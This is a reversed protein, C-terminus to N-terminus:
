ATTGNRRYSEVLCANLDQQSLYVQGLISNITRVDDHEVAIVLALLQGLDGNKKILADSINKDVQIQQLLKELREKYALESISLLGTMYAASAFKTSKHMRKALTEMLSAREKAQMRLPEAYDEDEDEVDAAYILMELWNALKERGILILAQEVSAISENSLGEHLRIFKLLNIALYPSENFTHILQDLPADTKLLYVLELLLSNEPDLRTHKMILPKAFFYGQFFHFGTKVVRDYTEQDEIKEGIYEFNYKDFEIFASTPDKLLKVDVKLYDLRQILADNLIFFSPDDEFRNLSFHYGKGRLYDIRKILEDNIVSDQLIELIFHTPSISFIIDDMLTKDDVKIFAKKGKTLNNLGIYNLANVLVRATAHMNNKISVGGEEARNRYLLEYAIVNRKDDFIPQRAIYISPEM